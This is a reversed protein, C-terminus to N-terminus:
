CCCNCQENVYNLITEAEDHQGKCFASKASSLMRELHAIEAFKDPNCLPDVSNVKEDICCDVPCTNFGYCTSTYENGSSDTITYVSKWVGIPMSSLSLDDIMDIELGDGNLNPLYPYVDVLIPTTSGPTYINVVAATFTFLDVTPNPGGYGNENHGSDYTCTTDYVVLSSKGIIINQRIQLSM